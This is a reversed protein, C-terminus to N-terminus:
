GPILNLLSPSMVPNHPEFKRKSPTMTALLASKPLPTAEPFVQQLSKSWPHVSLCPYFSTGPKSDHRTRDTDM